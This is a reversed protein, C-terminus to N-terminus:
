QSQDSFDQTATFSESPDTDTSLAQSGTRLAREYSLWWAEAKDVTWDNAAPCRRLLQALDRATQPRKARAKELCSLLAHELEPSVAHRLRESPSQVPQTIHM